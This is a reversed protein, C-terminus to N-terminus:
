EGESSLTTWELISERVRQRALEVDRLQLAELINRHIKLANRGTREKVYTTRISTRYFEMVLGYVDKVLGNGTAEALAMHFRLDCDTIDDVQTENKEVLEEMQKFCAAVKNVQTETANRVALEIIGIEMMVRLETLNKADNGNLIMSFLIPNFIFNDATTSIFTGIGRKIEIVGIASLRNMAERVSSRSVGLEFMLQQETPVKDGPRLKKTMLQEKIYQDVLDSTQLKNRSYNETSGQEPM